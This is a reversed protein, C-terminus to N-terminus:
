ILDCKNGTYWTFAANCGYVLMHRFSLVIAFQNGHNIFFL